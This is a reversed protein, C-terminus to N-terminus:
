MLNDDIYNGYTIADEEEWDLMEQYEDQADQISEFADDYYVKERPSKAFLDRTDLDSEIAKLRYAEFEKLGKMTRNEYMRAQDERSWTKSNARTAGLYTYGCDALVQSISYPRPNDREYAKIANCIKVYLNPATTRIESTIVMNYEDIAPNPQVSYLDLKIEDLYENYSKRKKLDFYPM